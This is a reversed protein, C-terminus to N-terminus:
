KKKKKDLDDQPEAKDKYDYMSQNMGNGTVIQRTVERPEKPARTGSVRTNDPKQAPTTARNKEKVVAEGQQVVNGGGTAHEKMRRVTATDGSSEAKRFAAKTLSDVHSRAQSSSLESNVHEPTQGKKYKYSM